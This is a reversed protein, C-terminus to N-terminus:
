LVDNQGDSEGGDAVSDALLSHRSSCVEEVGHYHSVESEGLKWCLMTKRGDLVTPFHVIGEPDESPEVGLARLEDLYELLQKEDRELENQIEVLEERYPDYKDPKRESLLFVMRTQREILDTLLRSWDATIARVLPLMADAQALTFQDRQWTHRHPMTTPM